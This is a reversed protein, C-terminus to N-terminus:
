EPAKRSLTQVAGRRQARDEIFQPICAAQRFLHVVVAIPRRLDGLQGRRNTCGRVGCVQGVPGAQNDADDGGGGAATHDAVPVGRGHQGRLPRQFLNLRNLSRSQIVQLVPDGHEIGAASQLVGISRECREPPEGFVDGPLSPPEPIKEVGSACYQWHCGIPGGHTLAEGAPQGAAFRPAVPQAEVVPPDQVAAVNGQGIAARQQM